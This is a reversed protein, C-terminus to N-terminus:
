SGLRSPHTVLESFQPIKSRRYHPIKFRRQCLDLEYTKRQDDYSSLRDKVLSKLYKWGKLQQKNRTIYGTKAIELLDAVPILDYLNTHKEAFFMYGNSATDVIFEDSMKRDITQRLEGDLLHGLRAFKNEYWQNVIKEAAGMCCDRGNFSYFKQVEDVLDQRGTKHEYM